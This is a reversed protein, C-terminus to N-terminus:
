SRKQKQDAETILYKSIDLIKEHKTKIILDKGIELARTVGLVEDALSCHPVFYIHTSELNATKLLQDPILPLAYQCPSSPLAKKQLSFVYQGNRHVLKTAASHVDFSTVFLLILIGSLKKRLM